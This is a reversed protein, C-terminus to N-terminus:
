DHYSRWNNRLIRLSRHFQREKLGNSAMLKDFHKDLVCAERFGKDRSDRILGYLPSVNDAYQLVEPYEYYKTANETIDSFVIEIIRSETTPSLEISQAQNLLYEFLKNSDIEIKFVVELYYRALLIIAFKSLIRPVLSAENDSFRSSKYQEYM